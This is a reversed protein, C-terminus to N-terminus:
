FALCFVKCANHCWSCLGLCLSRVKLKVMTGTFGRIGEGAAPKGRESTSGVEKRHGGGIDKRRIEIMDQQYYLRSIEAVFEEKLHSNFTYSDLVLLVHYFFEQRMGCARVRLVDLVITTVHAAPEM